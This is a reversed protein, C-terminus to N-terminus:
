EYGLEALREESIGFFHAIEHVVTLEIQLELEEISECIEELPEQFLLITDPFLPPSTLSRERLPVGQFIGLLSEDSPLDMEELIMRSPRKQVSILINGLHQRMERPIRHVAKKVVRDFAKRSLKMHDVFYEKIFFVIAAM